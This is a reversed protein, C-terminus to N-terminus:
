VTQNSRTASPWMWRRGPGFRTPGQPSSCSAASPTFSAKLSLKTGAAVALSRKTIAGVIATAAAKREQATIGIPRQYLTWYQIASTLTPTSSIKANLERLTYAITMPPYAELLLYEINPPM